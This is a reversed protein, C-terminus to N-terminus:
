IIIETGVGKDTFIELLLSHSLRGDIMHIKKVGARLAAVGSEVKPLMGGSIIKKQILSNVQDVKLSAMVSSQDDEDRLLGPVDSVYVLKRAKLAKAIAAAAVDANVNHIKGDEGMGLPTIVPIVKRKLLAKIPDINVEGPEGVFGWDWKKGTKTDIEEKKIVNLVDEGHIGKAKAGLSKLVNVIDPNIEKKFVAEVVKITEACTVRLGKVFRASIGAKRMERSIAKGGGHVIVTRMGVCEMFAVDELIGERCENDEMASGGFKVVVIEGRFKQIYPLAEVLVEAKKIVRKM